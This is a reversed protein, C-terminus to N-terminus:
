KEIKNTRNLHLINLIFIGIVVILPLFLIWQFQPPHPTSVFVATPGDAGGIIGVSPTGTQIEASGLANLFSTFVNRFLFYSGLVLAIGLINATILPKNKM